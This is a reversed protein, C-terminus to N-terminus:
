FSLFLHYFGNCFCLCLLDKLWQGTLHDFRALIQGLHELCLCGIRIATNVVMNHLDDVPNDLRARVLGNLTEFFDAEQDLITILQVHLLKDPTAIISSIGLM